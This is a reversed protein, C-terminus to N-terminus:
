LRLKMEPTAGSGAPRSLVGASDHLFMLMARSGVLKTMVMAFNSADGRQALLRKRRERQENKMKKKFKM